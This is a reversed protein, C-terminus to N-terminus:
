HGNREHPSDKGRTPLEERPEEDTSSCYYLEIFDKDQREYEDAKEDESDEHVVEDETPPALTLPFAAPVPAVVVAVSGAAM